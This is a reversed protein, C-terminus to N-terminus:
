YPKRVQYWKLEWQMQLAAGPILWPKHDGLKAALHLASNGQSDVIRFASGKLINKDLLLKYVHPHRNEVALLVINKQDANLDHIAVPFLHLIKEVMEVVGNKAAILIPTDKGVGLNELDGAGKKTTTKKGKKMEGVSSAACFIIKILIKDITKLRFRMNNTISISITYTGIGHHITINNDPAMNPQQPHHDHSSATPPDTPPLNQSHINYDHFTVTGNAFNYPQTTEQDADMPTSGNDDYEYMSACELLQNMVQSAWIHKEKKEQIKKIEKFGIKINDLLRWVFNIGM